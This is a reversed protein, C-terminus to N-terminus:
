EGASLESLQRALEQRRTVQDLLEDEDGSLEASRIRREVSRIEAEIKSRSVTRIYDASLQGGDSEGVHVLTLETLLARTEEDVDGVLGAVDVPEGSTGENLILEAVLRLGDEEFDAPEILGAVDEAEKGGRILIALLGKRATLAAPTSSSTRAGGSSGRPTEEAAGSEADTPQTEARRRGRTEIEARRAEFARAVAGRSISLAIAIKELMLDATLPDEITSVTEILTRAAAERDDPSEVPNTAAYYDIFDHARELEAKFAEAGQERVFSDPDAGGPLAAIRVKHSLRVLVEAARTAASIGATDGDYAVFVKDAYRSLMKAQEPTFATGASAVANLFGAQHLSLTDTYGEVLIAERSSRLATSGQALGYLYYSKRYVRTEPSNLYKPEQDGFARGGFGVVRGGSLLLPFILRDRFRDYAGGDERRIVLGAEELAADGVGEQRAAKRLNDWGPPVYGVRFVELVTEGLGRRECYERAGAGSPGLFSKRFYELAFANTRYIPDDTDDHMRSVSEPIRIGARSALERVADLFGLKEYEMLFTIVNGGVGCGFCHYIQKEPNINFSPTKEQHFPCLARYNRGAKKTPIRESIVDIIDNAARIDDILQQPIRRVL